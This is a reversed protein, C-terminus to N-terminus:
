MSKAMSTIWIVICYRIRFPGYFSFSYHVFLVVIGPLILVSCLCTLGYFSISPTCRFDTKLVKVWGHEGVFRCYWWLLREKFVVELRYICLGIIYGSIIRVFTYSLPLSWRSLWLHRIGLAAFWALSTHSSVRLLYTDKSFFPPYFCVTLQIIYYSFAPFRCYWVCSTCVVWGLPGMSVIGHGGNRKRPERFIYGWLWYKRRRKIPPAEKRDIPPLEPDGLLQFDGRSRM